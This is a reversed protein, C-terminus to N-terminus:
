IRADKPHPIVGEEILDTIHDSLRVLEEVSLNRLRMKGDVHEVSDLIDDALRRDVNLNKLWIQLARRLQKKPYSYVGRLMWYFVRDSRARIGGKRPTMRVVLSNVAPKPYFFHSPVEFLPEVEAIYNVAVTLRSYEKSGREAVMREAFEKQYMLISSEPKLERLIRFTIPSSASFPLNSVVKKVDPLNMELFDGHIVSLGGVDGLKERLAAVLREDIEVVYVRKARSVLIETLVGLGGGIELVTDEAAIEAADVIRQAVQVNALFSQGLKKRPKVGYKNL